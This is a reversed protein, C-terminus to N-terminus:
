GTKTAIFLELLLQNRKLTNFQYSANMHTSMLSMVHVWQILQTYNEKFIMDSKTRILYNLYTQACIFEDIDTTSDSTTAFLKYNNQKCLFKPILHTKNYAKFAKLYIRFYEANKDQDHYMWMLQQFFKFEIDNLHSILYERLLKPSPTFCQRLYHIRKAFTVPPQWMKKLENVVIDLTMLNPEIKMDYM